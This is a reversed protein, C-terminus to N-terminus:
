RRIGLKEILEKYAEPQKRAHFRLLAARRGVMQLLGRRTAHDKPFKQLHTTLHQIRDTLVAVQVPASGSDKAHQRFNEIVAKKRENLVAM